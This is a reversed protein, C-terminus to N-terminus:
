PRRPCPLRVTVARYPGAAGAHEAAGGAPVAEGFTGARGQIASVQRGLDDGVNQGVGGLPHAGALGSAQEADVAVGDGAVDAGGAVVGMTVSKRVRVPPRIGHSIVEFSYGTYAAAM